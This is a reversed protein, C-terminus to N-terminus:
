KVKNYTLGTEASCEALYSELDELSGFSRFWFFRYTVQAATGNQKIDAYKIQINGEALFDEPLVNSGLKQQLLDYVIVKSGDSCSYRHIATNNGPGIEGGFSGNFSFGNWDFKINSVYGDEGNVDDLRFALIPAMSPSMCPQASRKIDGRGAATTTIEVYKEGHESTKIESMTAGGTTVQWGEAEDRYWPRVDFLIPYRVGDYLIDLVGAGPKKNFTVDFSGTTAGDTYNQVVNAIVEKQKNQYTLTKGLYDAGIEFGINKSDVLSFAESPIGSLKFDKSGADPAEGLYIVQGSEIMVGTRGSYKVYLENDMTTVALFIKNYEGPMVVIYYDGPEMAKGGNDLSVERSSNTDQGDGTVTFTGDEALAVTLKGSMRAKENALSLSRVNTMGEPITVKMLACVNKFNFVDGESVAYMLNLNTDFSGKVAKQIIPFTATITKTSANYSTGYKYPYVAVYETAGDAAYGSFLASGGAINSSEFPNNANSVNDFVSIKDGETWYVKRGEVLSTKTLNLDASFTKSVLVPENQGAPIQEKACSAAVMAMAAAIFIYSKKM